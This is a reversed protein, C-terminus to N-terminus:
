HSGSAGASDRRELQRRASGRLVVAGFMVLGAAVVSQVALWRWSGTTDLDALAAMTTPIQRAQTAPMTSSVTPVHANATRVVTVARESRQVRTVRTALLMVSALAVLGVVGAIQLRRPAGYAGLLFVILGLLVIAAVLVM